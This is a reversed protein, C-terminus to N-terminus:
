RVFDDLEGPPLCALGGEILDDDQKIIVLWESGGPLFGRVRHTGAQEAEAGTHFAKVQTKQPLGHGGRGVGAFPDKMSLAEVLLLLHVMVGIGSEERLGAKGVEDWVRVEGSQPVEEGVIGRSGRGSWFDWPAFCVLGPCRGPYNPPVLEFGQIPPVFAKWGGLVM